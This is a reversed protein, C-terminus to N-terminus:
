DTLGGARNAKLWELAGPVTEAVRLLQLACPNIDRGGGLWRRFTRPNVHCLRAAAGTELDLRGVLARLESSM